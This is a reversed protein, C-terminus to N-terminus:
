REPRALRLEVEPTAGDLLRPKRVRVMVEVIRRDRLVADAIRGALAELLAYSGQTVEQECTRYVSAYDITDRLDDSAAARTLDCHFEIDLDIPQTRDREGPLAGHRGWFRMGLIRITGPNVDSANTPAM